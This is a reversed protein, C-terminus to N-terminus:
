KFGFWGSDHERVSVPKNNKNFDNEFIWANKVTKTQKISNLPDILAHRVYLMHPKVGPHLNAM